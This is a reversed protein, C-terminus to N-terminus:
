KNRLYSKYKFFSTIEVNVKLRFSVFSDNGGKNKPDSIGDLFDTQTLHYTAEAGASINDFLYTNFGVSVPIFVSTNTIKKQGVPQPLLRLKEKTKQDRPEFYMFGVGATVYPNLKYDQYPVDGKPLFYHVLSFNAQGNHSYFSVDGDKANLKFYGVGLRASIYETLHYYGNVNVLPNLGFSQDGFGTFGSLEGSYMSTGLGVDYAWNSFTPRTYPRFYRWKRKAFVQTDALFIIGLLLALVAIKKNFNVNM